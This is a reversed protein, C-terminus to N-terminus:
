KGLILVEKDDKFDYPMAVLYPNVNILVRSNFITEKNTEVEEEEKDSIMDIDDLSVEEGATDEHQIFHLYGELTIRSRFM